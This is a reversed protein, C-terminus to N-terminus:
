WKDSRVEFIEFEVYVPQSPDVRQDISNQLVERVMSPISNASFIEIGPDNFGIEEGNGNSVFRWKKKM